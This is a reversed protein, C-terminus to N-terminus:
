GGREVVFVSHGVKIRDGPNLLRPKEQELREDNLFTGNTSGRDVLLLSGHDFRIYAHYGSLYGDDALCLTNDDEGGITFYDTEIPVREGELLGEEGILTATPRGPEPSAFEVRIQTARRKRPRPRTIEDSEGPEGDRGDDPEDRIFDDPPLWSEEPQEGIQEDAIREKQQPAAPQPKRRSLLLFAALLLLGLAALGVWLWWRSPTPTNNQGGPPPIVPGKPLIVLRNGSRVSGGESWRAGLQHQEGDATLRQATVVAVHTSKLRTLGANFARGLDDESRALEYHGGTMDALRELNSLHKPDIQTL